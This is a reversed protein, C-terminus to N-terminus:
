GNGLHYGKLVPDLKEGNFRIAPTAESFPTLPLVTDVVIEKKPNENKDNTM